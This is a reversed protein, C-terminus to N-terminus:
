FTKTQYQRGELDIDCRHPKKKLDLVQCCPCWFHEFAEKFCLLPDWIIIPSVDDHIPKNTAYAIPRNIIATKEPARGKAISDDHKRIEERIFCKQTPSIEIASVTSNLLLTLFFATKLDFYIM